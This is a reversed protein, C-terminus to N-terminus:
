TQQHTWQLDEETVKFFTKLMQMQNKRLTEIERSFYRMPDLRNDAKEMLIKLM